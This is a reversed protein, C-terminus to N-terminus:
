RFGYRLSVFYRRGLVDYQSPDTNAQPYSPFLPPEEDGVNEVGVTLALGSLTGADAVYSVGVDFYDYAPVRFDPYEADRMADIHQWRAFATVELWQYRLDLVSRWRPISGGLGRNGITGAYDVERGDPETAKWDIVYTLYGTAALRGPGAAMAWDLQVDVGSTDIGGINRDLERAYMEGTNAVRTFFTCYPFAPDYSSNYAPDFCREVASETEWRGIGNGFDIRYWDFAVQLNALAPHQLTSELVIGATLTDAEEPELDPNGGSVGDVRRLDFSYTPLLAPPVGQALCLAAVQAQDPGTRQPSWYSCPDPRPVVFQSAIEPYYLEEVSPARVAHQLSGRWMLAPNQRFTLELKYSDARGAQEYNSLRYGAGLELSRGAAADRLLPARAELYLDTNSEEGSRAAGAGFGSIDPRPGIVGPVGPLIVALVPDPVYDFQERKFFVGGAVLLEGAPLDLLPGSLSAEALTQDVQAENEASTAVYNACEATIRNRGFVDLGGCISKGGDPAFLLEQYKSIRTIGDQRERRENRGYQAYVDYRWDSFVTGRLGATVQLLQRDNRATRPGLVTPRAFFRFPVSPNVRSEALTRLDPPLYPNSMPVLLIGSDTPALQRTARYDAYIAQGYAEASASVAFRGRLFLSTRELPLQLATLPATNYTLLRDNYTVPDIPGRYNVVSGPTEGDGFTFVTRDENVGVGPYYQATGPPFGYSGFLQEFVAPNSFIVAYGEETVGAGGVRFAGGPGYGNTEDAYYVFPYRTYNRDGQSVQDREAYGVYVVVTGRGAAFSTGGLIGASYEQGDGRDTQSWGGQFEIGDVEDRLRFNVVGAIADSGYAASAGGTMVEVSEILAPPVVNLDISGRGDAPVLRKGDVLVLTQAVGVGRLSLNAQGDNSPDNSTSTVAPVFQPLQALVREASVGSSQEFVASPVSAIPSASTFDRRAIRSGTVEITELTADGAVSAIPGLLSTV